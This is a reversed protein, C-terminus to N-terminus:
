GEDPRPQLVLVLGAFAIVLYAFIQLYETEPVQRLAFIAAVGVLVLLLLQSRLDRWFQGGLAVGIVLLQLVACVGAFGAMLPRMFDAIANILMPAMGFQELAPVLVFHTVWIAGVWLTMSLQWAVRGGRLAPRGAGATM